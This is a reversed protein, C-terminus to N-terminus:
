LFKRYEDSFIGDKERRSKSEQEYRKLSVLIKEAEERNLFDELAESVAASFNPRSERVRHVINEDLTLTYKKKAM